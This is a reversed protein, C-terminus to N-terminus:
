PLVEMYLASVNTSLSAFTITAALDTQGALLASTPPATKSRALPVTDCYINPAAAGTVCLCAAAYWTGAAIQVSATLAREYWAYTGAWLATDNACGALLTLDWSTDASYLGMKCLTPTAGAATGGTHSGIKTAVFTSRAQWYVVRLYGSTLTASSTAGGMRSVTENGSALAWPGLHAGVVPGAEFRGTTENYYALTM